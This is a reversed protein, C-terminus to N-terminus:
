RGLGGAAAGGVRLQGSASSCRRRSRWTWGRGRRACAPRRWTSSSGGCRSSSAATSWRRGCGSARRGCRPTPFASSRSARCAATSTSRSGSRAPPSATSPSPEPPPSCPPSALCADVARTARLFCIRRAVMPLTRSRGPSPGSIVSRGGGCRRLDGLLEDGVAEGGGAPLDDLAVGAGAVALEVDDGAVAAGEDEDLDLGAAGPVAKPGSRGIRATSRGCAAGPGGARWRRSPRAGRGAAGVGLDAEVGDADGEVAGAATSTSCM